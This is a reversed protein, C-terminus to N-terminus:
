GGVRTLVLGPSAAPISQKVPLWPSAADVLARHSPEQPELIVLLHCKSLDALTQVVSFRTTYVPLTETSYGAACAIQGRAAAANIIEAAARNAM